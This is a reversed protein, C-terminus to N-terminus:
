QLPTVKHHVSKRFELKKAMLSPHSADGQLSSEPDFVLQHNRRGSKGKETKCDYDIEFSFM